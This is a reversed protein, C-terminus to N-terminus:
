QCMGKHCKEGQMCSQHCAGCNALDNSLNAECGNAPSGDCDAFGGPCMLGGASSSNSTTTATSSSATGTSSAHASDSTSNSNSNSNSAGGSGGGAGGDYGTGEPKDSLQAGVLLTCGGTSLTALVSLLAARGHFSRHRPRAPRM